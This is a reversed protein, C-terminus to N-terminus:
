PWPPSTPPWPPAAPRQPPVAPPWPPAGDDAWTPVASQAESPLEWPPLSRGDAEASTGAPPATSGADWSPVPSAPEPPATPSAAAWPPVARPEDPPAADRGDERSPASRVPTADDAAWPPVAQDGRQPPLTNATDWSWGSGGAAHTVPSDTEAEPTTAPTDPGAVYGKRGGGRAPAAGNGSTGNGAPARGPVGGNGTAGNAKASEALRARIAARAANGRPTEPVQAMGAGAQRVSEAPRVRETAATDRGAVAPRAPTTGAGAAGPRAGAAVEAPAVSAVAASAAAAGTPAARAPRLDRAGAMGDKVTAAATARSWPRLRPMTVLLLVLVAVVTVIALVFLPTRVISLLIVTGSFLAAWLYMILVSTRHSHGIALLRHQLHKKDPAFVSKGARTRRVVAMLLDAYPILLIAAPVLLPIFAGYRNVTGAQYAATDTLSAPDLLALSSIPAYALMLGILMSGTDGMFIRAPYFNHPLFGICVGALLVSVLAPESQDLLGLRHVLTFYYAFFALAGIGVIGAALGDLGDIFNVANMTVVVVLITV